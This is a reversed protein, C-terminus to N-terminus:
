WVPRTSCRTTSVGADLHAVDQEALQAGPEVGRGDALPEGVGGAPQGVQGVAERGLVPRGDRGHQGRQELGQDLLM